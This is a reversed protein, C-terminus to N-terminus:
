MRYEEKLFSVKNKKLIRWDEKFFGVTLCEYIFLWQEDMSDNKILNKAHEKLAKLENKLNNQRCYLLSLLSLLCDNVGIIEEIDFKSIKLEYKIAYYLAYTCAENFRKYLFTDFILNIYQEIDLDSVECPQFVLEDLLPVMYPYILSLHVAQKVLLTQANPTLKHSSLLRLAYNLIAGNEENERMLLIVLDLFSQVDKYDVYPKFKEFYVAKNKIKQVWTGENPVPLEEIKTKKHNLSLGYKELEHNIQILFDDVEDQSKVFCYYDDIYRIYEWKECLKEDISCLIIESLINSTHPGILLGHTEGNKTNRAFKDIKNYWLDDQRTTQKAISKGVLAWPLAHTYVSSFFQSIDVHVVYKKGIMIDSEPTGDTIWNSYNMEFLSNKNYLKRIHTRSVIWKQNATKERFHVVIKQWSESLCYCLKEYSMPVPIGITRPANINRMINYSVYGTWKTQFAARNPTTCYKLFDNMDFIPTLKESFLGGCILRNYLEQPTIENMFDYYTKEMKNKWDRKM